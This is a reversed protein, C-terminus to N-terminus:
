SDRHKSGRPRNFWRTLRISARVVLLEVPKGEKEALTVVRSFLEQEYTTFLQDKGLDTEGTRSSVNRTTMVVIDQKQTNAKHLVSQLHTM